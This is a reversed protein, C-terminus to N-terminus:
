EAFALMASSNEFGTNWALRKEQNQACNIFVTISRKLPFNFEAFIISSDRIHRVPPKGDLWVAKTVVSEVHMANLAPGELSM